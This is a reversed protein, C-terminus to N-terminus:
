CLFARLQPLQITTKKGKTMAGASRQRRVPPEDAGERHWPRERQRDKQHDVVDNLDSLEDATAKDHLDKARAESTITRCLLNQSLQRISSEPTRRRSLPQISISRSVQFSLPGPKPIFGMGLHILRERAAM